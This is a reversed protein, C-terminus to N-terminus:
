FSTRVDADFVRISISPYALSPWLSPPLPVSKHTADRFVSLSMADLPTPEEGEALELRGFGGWRLDYEWCVHSRWFAPTAGTLFPLLSRGDCQRPDRRHGAGALVRPHYANSGRTRHLGRRCHRPDRRRHAAPRRNHLSHSLVPRFLRCEFREKEILKRETHKDRAQRPLSIM